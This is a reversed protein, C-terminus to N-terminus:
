AKYTLDPCPNSGGTKRVNRSDLAPRQQMAAKRMGLLGVLPSGHAVLQEFLAPGAAEDGSGGAPKQRRRM